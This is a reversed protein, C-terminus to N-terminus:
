GRSLADIAATLNALTPDAQDLRAALRVALVARGTATPPLRDGLADAHDDLAAAARRLAELARRDTDDAVDFRWREVRGRIAV